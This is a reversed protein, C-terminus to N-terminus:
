ICKLPDLALGDIKDNAVFHENYKDTIENIKDKEITLVMCQTPNKLTADPFDIILEKGSPVVLSEGPIFDFSPMENFHMIKKGSLMGIISPVNFTLSVRDVPQYTEFISLESSEVTYVTRNEILTTLKRTTIHNHLYKDM